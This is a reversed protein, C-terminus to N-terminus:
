EHTAEDVTVAPPPDVTDAPAFPLGYVYGRYLKLLWEASMRWSNTARAVRRPTCGTLHVSSM